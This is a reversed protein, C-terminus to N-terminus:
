VYSKICMAPLRLLHGSFVTAPPRQHKPPLPRRTVPLGATVLRGVGLALSM